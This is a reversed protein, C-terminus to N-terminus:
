YGTEAAPPTVTGIYEMASHTVDSHIHNKGGSDVGEVGSIWVAGTMVAETATLVEDVTPPKNKHGTIAIPGQGVPGTLAPDSGTFIAVTPM